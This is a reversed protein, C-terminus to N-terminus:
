ARDKAKDPCFDPTFIFVNVCIDEDDIKLEVLDLGVVRIRVRVVDRNASVAGKGLWEGDGKGFSLLPTAYSM